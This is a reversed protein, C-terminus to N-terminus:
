ETTKGNKQKKIFSYIAIGILALGCIIEIIGMTEFGPVSILYVGKYLFYVAFALAIISSISKKM